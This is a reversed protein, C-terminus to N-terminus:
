GASSARLQWHHPPPLLCLATAPVIQSASMAPDPNPRVQDMLRAIDAIVTDERKGAKGAGSGSPRTLTNLTGASSVTVRQRVDVPKSEGTLLALHLAAITGEAVVGDAALREGAALMTMGPELRVRRALVVAKDTDIVFCGAPTYLKLLTSATQRLVSVPQADRMVSDLWRGTLLFFLLMVRATLIPTRGHVITEFLSM